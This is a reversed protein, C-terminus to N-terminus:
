ENDPSDVLPYFAITLGFAQGDDSDAHEYHGCEELLAKLRTIFEVRQQPALMLRSRQIVMTRNEENEPRVKQILGYEFAQRIDAMTSGFITDFLIELGQQKKEDDEIMTLIERDVTFSRARPQYWKEIIGSVVQTDVIVILGHEELQKIHYYLKKPDIKMREAVIKVTTPEEGMAQMIQMRFPDSIVKLTELDSILYSEAPYEQETTM